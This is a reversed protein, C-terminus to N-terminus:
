QNEQNEQNERKGVVVNWPRIRWATVLGQEVYPDREVFEEVVSRDDATFVFLAGDLPETLAAAMLLSGAANAADALALQAERHPARRELIDEVYDYFLLWYM